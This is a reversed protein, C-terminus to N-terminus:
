GGASHNTKKFKNVLMNVLMNVLKNVLKNVLINMWRAFWRSDLITKQRKIFLCSFCIFNRICAM